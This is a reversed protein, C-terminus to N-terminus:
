EDAGDFLMTFARATDSGRVNRAEEVSTPPVPDDFLVLADGGGGAVVGALPDRALRAGLATWSERRPDVPLGDARPTYNPLRANRRALVPPREPTM